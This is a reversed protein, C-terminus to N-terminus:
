SRLLLWLIGLITLTIFLLFLFVILYATRKIGLRDGRLHADWKNEPAPRETPPISELRELWAALLNLWARINETTLDCPDLRRLTLMAGGPWISLSRIEYSGGTQLLESLMEAAKEDRLAWRGWDADHALVTLGEPADQDLSTLEGKFRATLPALSKDRRGARLRVKLATDLVIEVHEGAYVGGSVTAHAERVPNVYADFKRGNFRGHYRRGSRTYRASQEALSSWAQDLAAARDRGAFRVRVLLVVVAVVVCLIVMSFFIAPRMNSWSRPLPTLFVAAALIALIVIAAGTLAVRLRIGTRFSSLWSGAVRASPSSPSAPMRNSEM